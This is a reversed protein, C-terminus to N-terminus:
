PNFTLTPLVFDVRNVWFNACTSHYRRNGHDLVSDLVANYQENDKSKCNSRSVVLLCLGCMDSVEQTSTKTDSSRQENKRELEKVLCQAFNFVSKEPIISKGNLNITLQKWAQEIKEGKEIIMDNEGNTTNSIYNQNRREVFKEHSLQIRKFVRYIEVINKIYNSGEDSELIEELVADSPIYTFADTAQSILVHIETLSALWEKLPSKLGCHNNSVSNNDNLGSGKMIDHLGKYRDSSKTSTVNNCRETQNEELTKDGEADEPM